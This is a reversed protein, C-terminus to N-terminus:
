GRSHSGPRRDIGSIIYYLIHIHDRAESIYKKVAQFKEEGDIFIKVENDQSYYSKNHFLNMKILDKYPYVKPDNIIVNGKLYRNKQQDIYADYIKEEVVKMKFLKKRSFNPSLLIYLFFGVWPIFLLVLVWTLTAIPDKRELFIVAFAFLINIAYFISIWGISDFM